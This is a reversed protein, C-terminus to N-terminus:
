RSKMINEKGQRIDSLPMNPLVEVVNAGLLDQQDILQSFLTNYWEIKGEEDVIFLAFPMNFVANEALLDFSQNMDEVYSVFDEKEKKNQHQIFVAMVACVILAAIGLEKHFFVLILSLVASFALIVGGTKWLNKM